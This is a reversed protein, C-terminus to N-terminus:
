KELHTELRQLRKELHKIYKDMGLMHAKRASLQKEIYVSLREPDTYREVNIESKKIPPYPVYISKPESVYWEPHNPDRKIKPFGRAEIWDFPMPELGVSKELESLCKELRGRLWSVQIALEMAQHDLEMVNFVLKEGIPKSTSQTTNDKCGLLTIVVVMFIM